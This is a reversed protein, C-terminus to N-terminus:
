PCQKKIMIGNCFCQKTTAELSVTRLNRFFLLTTPAMELTSNWRSPTSVGSDALKQEEPTVPVGLNQQTSPDIEYVPNPILLTPKRTLYADKPEEAMKILLDRAKLALEKPALPSEM